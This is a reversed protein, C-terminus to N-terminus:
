SPLDKTFKISNIIKEFSAKNLGKLFIKKKNNTIGSIIKTEVRFLNSFLKILEKNARGKNPPKKCFCQVGSDTIEIKSTKSKPKVLVGLIVGEKTEKIKM